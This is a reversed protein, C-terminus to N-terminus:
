PRVVKVGPPLQPEVDLVSPDGLLGLVASAQCQKGIASMQERSIRMLAKPVENVTEPPRGRLQHELVQDGLAASTLFRVNYARAYDWRLRNLRTENSGVDPLGKMSLSVAVAMRRISTNEVRGRVLLRMTGDRRVETGSSFGYSSGVAERQLTTWQRELEDGLLEFALEDELNRATATCGFRVRVQKANPLPEKVLRLVGPAAPLPPLASGPGPEGGHWRSVWHEVEDRLDGQIDGAVVLVSNKPVFVQEAWRQAAGGDLSALEALPVTTRGGPDGLMSRWFRQHFADARPTTSVRAVTAKPPAVTDRTLLREALMALVNKLNGAAARYQITGSDDNWWTSLTAGIWGPEHYNWSQRAWRLRYALGPPSSTLTGGRVGLTVTILGTGPEPVSVVELGNSAVFGSAGHLQPGHAFKEVIERPYEARFSEPAFAETSGVKDADDGEHTGTPKLLVARAGGETIHTRGAALVDAYTLHAIAASQASLTASSHLLRARQARHVTRSLPSENRMALDVVTAGRVQGFLDEIFADGTLTGGTWAQEKWRSRIKSWVEEPDADPDLELTLLLMSADDHDSAEANVGTVGKAYARNEVMGPLISLVPELWGRMPPMTWGVVLQPRSVPATITPLKAPAPPPAVATISRPPPAAGPPGDRLQAPVRQELMAAVQARDLAGGLVWTINRPVYHAKAWVRAGELTLSALSRPTGGVGRAYPHSPPFLQSVLTTWAEQYKGSEDLTHLEAIVVNREANFTAEDVGELPATMRAAEADIMWAVTEPAGVEEFTTADLETSANWSGVGHLALWTALSPQGPRHARFTLHEVLHALGEQGPPDDAAGSGIVLASSVVRATPDVEVTVQLGSPLKADAITFQRTPMEIRSSPPVPACSSAVLWGVGLLAARSVGRHM